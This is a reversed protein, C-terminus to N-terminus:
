SNQGRTLSDMRHILGDYGRFLGAHCRDAWSPRALTDYATGVINVQLGPGTPDSVACVWGRDGCASFISPVEKQQYGTVKGADGHIELNWLADGNRYFEACPQTGAGPRWISPAAINVPSGSSTWRDYGIHFWLGMEWAIGRQGGVRYVIFNRWGM